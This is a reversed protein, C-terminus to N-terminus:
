LVFNNKKTRLRKYTPQQKRILIQRFKLIFFKASSPNYFADVFQLQVNIIFLYTLTFYVRIACTWDLWLHAAYTKCM